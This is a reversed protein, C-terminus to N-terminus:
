LIAFHKHINGNFIIAVDDAYAVVKSGGGRLIRM